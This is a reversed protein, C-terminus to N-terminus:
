KSVSNYKTYLVYDFVAPVSEYLPFRRIFERYVGGISCSAKITAYQPVTLGTVTITASGGIPRIRAVFATNSYSITYQGSSPVNLTGLGGPNNGTKYLMYSNEVNYVDSGSSSDIRYIKVEVYPASGAWSQIAFNGDLGDDYNLDIELADDQAVSIGEIGNDLKIQIATNDDDDCEMGNFITELYGSDLTCVTGASQSLFGTGPYSLDCHDVVEDWSTDTTVVDLFSEVQAGARTSQQEVTTRQIDQFTRYAVAGVVLAAILIMVLVLVLAQGSENKMFIKLFIKRTQKKEKETIKLM